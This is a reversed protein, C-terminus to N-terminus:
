GKCWVKPCIQKFCLKQNGRSENLTLDKKGNWKRFKNQIKKRFMCCGGIPFIFALLCLYWANFTVAQEAAETVNRFFYTYLKFM